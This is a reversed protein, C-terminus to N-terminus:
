EDLTLNKYYVFEPSPRAVFGSVHDAVLFTFANWTLPIVWSSDERVQAAELFTALREDPDTTRGAELALDAFRVIDADAHERVFDELVGAKEAGDMSEDAEIEQYEMFDDASLSSQMMFEPGFINNVWNNMTSIGGFSGPRVHILSDDEVPRTLSESHVGPELIDITVEVDFAERWQDALLAERPDENNAQIRLDPINGEYGAEAMLRRAGDVDFAVALSEEWGPVANGPILTTGAVSQSPRLDVIAERDIAMSLARRVRADRVAEHGGYMFRLHQVNYGHNQVMQEHLEERQEIEPGNVVTVDLEGSTFSSLGAVRDMGLVLEISEIGVADYDWYSENAALRLSTTPDWNVPVYPGNGVWNEPEMWSQGDDEVSPPHLLVMSYHSMMILFDANPAALEVELTSEDLARVGVSDWDDNAGSMYDLAGKIGTGTLYSTAGGLYTSGAGTPTFLRQFSWEADDATVPDGNSWTAGERMTFTYVTEDESAEWSEAAAPLVDTVDDNSMVLGELLGAPLVLMANNVYHPDLSDLAGHTLVMRISGSPGASDDDGNSDAQSSGSGTDFGCGTLVLAASGLGGGLFLRRRVHGTGLNM